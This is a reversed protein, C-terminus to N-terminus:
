HRSPTSNNHSQLAGVAPFRPAEKDKNAEYNEVAKWWSDCAEDMGMFQQFQGLVNWALILQGDKVGEVQKKEEKTRGNDKKQIAHLFDELVKLGEKYNRSNFLGAAQKVAARVKNDEDEMLSTNCSIVKGNLLFFHLFIEIANRNIKAKEEKKTAHFTTLFWFCWFCGPYSVYGLSPVYINYIDFFM